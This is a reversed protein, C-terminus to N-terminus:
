NVEQRAARPPAAAETGTLERTAELAARLEAPTLDALADLPSPVSTVGQRAVHTYIM